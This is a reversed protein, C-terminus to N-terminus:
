YCIERERETERVKLIKAKHIKFFLVLIKETERVKILKQVLFIFYFNGTQISLLDLYRLSILQVNNLSVVQIELIDLM